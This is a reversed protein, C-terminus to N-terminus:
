SQTDLMVEVLSMKESPITEQLASELEAWGEPRYAEIGFSEAFTRFDPNGIETGFHEGRHEVQEETILRYEDDNFLLITYGCGIRTATEIEAANMMFGGDGTAAVV